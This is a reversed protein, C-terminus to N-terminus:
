QKKLKLITTDMCCLVMHVCSTWGNMETLMKLVLVKVKRVFILLHRPLGSSPALHGYTGGPIVKSARNFLTDSIEHSRM